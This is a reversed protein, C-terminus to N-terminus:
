DEGTGTLQELANAVAEAPDAARDDQTDAGSAAATEANDTTRATQMSAKMAAAQHHAVVKDTMGDGAQIHEAAAKYDGSAEAMTLHASVRDREKEQGIKVAAAYTAPHEAKLQELDMSRAESPQEGGDKDGGAAATPATRQKTLIADAMGRQVAEASLYTRGRGYNEKVQQPTVGRGAAIRDIFLNEVEDLQERVKEKGDDTTVDPRKDPANSSTITVVDDRVMLDVAVGVSGVSVAENALYFNDAAAAIGYAASAVKNYGIVTVDKEHNAVRDIAQFLGDVTGGPSDLHIEVQKVDPDGAAKDLHGIIEDYTVNGGGFLAMLLNTDRTLVGRAEIMAKDGQRTYRDEPSGFLGARDPGTPTMAEVQASTVSKITSALSSLAAQEIMLTGYLM